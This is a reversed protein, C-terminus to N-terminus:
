SSVLPLYLVSVIDMTESDLLMRMIELLQAQLGCQSQTLMGSVQLVLCKILAGAATTDMSLM